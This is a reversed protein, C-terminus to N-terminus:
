LGLSDNKYAEIRGLIRAVASKEFEVERNATREGTALITRKDKTWYKYAIDM